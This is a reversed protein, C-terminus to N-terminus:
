RLLGSPTSRGLTGGVGKVKDGQLSRDGFVVELSIQGLPPTCKGPMIGRFTISSPRLQSLPIQMRKLTDAYLINIGSGRDMLVNTLQYGVFLPDMVLASKGRHPIYDLHDSHDFSM